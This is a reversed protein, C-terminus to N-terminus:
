TVECSRLDRKSRNSKKTTLEGKNKNKNKNNKNKNGM